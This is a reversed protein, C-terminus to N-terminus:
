DEFNFEDKHKDKFIEFIKQLTADDEIATYNEEDENESPDVRLIVVEGDEVDQVEDIPLFVVYQNDGDEILDLFEFRVENGEEDNLIVVNDEEELEEPVNNLEEDM